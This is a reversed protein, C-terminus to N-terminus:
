AKHGAVRVMRGCAATGAFTFMLLLFSPQLTIASFTGAVVTYMATGFASELDM